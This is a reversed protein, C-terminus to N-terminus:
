SILVLLAMRHSFKHINAVGGNEIEKGVGGGGQIFAVATGKKEGRVAATGPRESHCSKGQRWIDRRAGWSGSFRGGGGKGKDESVQTAQIVTLALCV